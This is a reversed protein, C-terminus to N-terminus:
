SWCEDLFYNIEFCKASALMESVIVKLRTNAIYEPSANTEFILCSMTNKRTEEDGIKSAIDLISHNLFDQHDINAGHNLLIQIIESFQRATLAKNKSSQRQVLHMIANRQCNDFIGVDAGNQFLLKLLVKINPYAQNRCCQILPTNGWLCDQENVSVGAELFLKAIDFLKGHSPLTLGIYLANQGWVDTKSIDAKNLILLECIESCLEPNRYNAHMNEMLPTRGWFDCGNVDAGCALLLGVISETEQKKWNVEQVIALTLLTHGKHMINIYEAQCPVHELILNTVEAPFMKHFSNRVQARENDLRKWFMQKLHKRLKKPKTNATDGIMQFLEKTREFQFYSWDEEETVVQVKMVANDPEHHMSLLTFM